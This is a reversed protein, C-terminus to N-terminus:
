WVTIELELEVGTQEKVRSRILDILRLIDRASTGPQAVVFNADRESLEAGGVRQGPLGAQTILTAASLGRPDKFMRGTAEFTLPQNAKRLIWSKRL